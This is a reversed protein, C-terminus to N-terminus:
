SMVELRYLTSFYSFLPYLPRWLRYLLCSQRSVYLMENKIGRGAISSLCCKNTFCQCFLQQLGRISQFLRTYKTLWSPTLARKELWFCKRVTHYYQPLMYFCVTLGNRHDANQKVSRSESDIGDCEKTHEVQSTICSIM